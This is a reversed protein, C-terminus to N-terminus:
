LISYVDRPQRHFTLLAIVWATSELWAAISPTRVVSTTDVDQDSLAAVVAAAKM